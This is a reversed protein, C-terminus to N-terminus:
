QGLPPVDCGEAQGKGRETRRTALAAHAGAGWGGAGRPDMTHTNHTPPPPTTGVLIESLKSPHPALDYNLPVELHTAATHPGACASELRGLDNAFSMALCVLIPQCRRHPHIARGEQRLYAWTAFDWLVYLGQIKSLAYRTHM